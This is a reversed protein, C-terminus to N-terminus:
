TQVIPASWKDVLIFAILSGLLILGAWCGLLIWDTMDFKESKFTLSVVLFQVLNFVVTISQFIAISQAGLREIGVAQVSSLVMLDGLFVLPAILALLIFIPHTLYFKPNILDTLSYMVQKATYLRVLTFVLFIAQVVVAWGFATLLKASVAM